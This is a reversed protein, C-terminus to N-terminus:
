WNSGLDVTQPQVKSSNHTWFGCVDGDFDEWSPQFPNFSLVKGRSLECRGHSKRSAIRGHLFKKRVNQFSSFVGIAHFHSFCDLNLDSVWPTRHLFIPFNVKDRIFSLISESTFEILPVDIQIYNLTIKVWWQFKRRQRNPRTKILVLKREPKKDGAHISRVLNERRGGEVKLIKM